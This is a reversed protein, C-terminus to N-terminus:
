EELINNAIEVYFAKSGDVVKAKEFKLLWQVVEQVAGVKGAGGVKTWLWGEGKKENGVKIYWLEEADAAEQAAVTAEDSLNRKLEKPISSVRKTFGATVGPLNKGTKSTILAYVHFVVGEGHLFKKDFDFAGQKQMAEKRGFVPTGNLQNFHDRYIMGSLRSAFDRILEQFKPKDLFDELGLSGCCDELTTEIGVELIDTLDSYLPRDMEPYPRKSKPNHLARKLRLM